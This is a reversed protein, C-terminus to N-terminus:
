KNNPHTIQHNCECGYEVGICKDHLGDFCDNCQSWDEKLNNSQTFKDQLMQRYDLMGMEIFKKQEDTALEFTSVRQDIEEDTVEVVEECRQRETQLLKVVDEVHVTDGWETHVYDLEKVIEEVSREPQKNM